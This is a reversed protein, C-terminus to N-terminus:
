PNEVSVYPVKTIKREATVFALTRCAVSDLYGDALLHYAREFAQLAARSLPGFDGDIDGHYLGIAALAKQAGKEDLDFDHHEDIWTSVGRTGHPPSSPTSGWSNFHWDEFGRQDDHRHCVWGREYMWDLLGSYESPLRASIARRENIKQFSRLTGDVDLDLSIGYNHGSWGPRQVGAKSLRALLSVVADRYMDTLRISWLSDVLLRLLTPRVNPHIFKMRTPLKGHYLGGEPGKIPWDTLDDLLLVM